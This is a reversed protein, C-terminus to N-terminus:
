PQAQARAAEEREKEERAARSRFTSLAYHYDDLYDIDFALESPAGPVAMGNIGVLEEIKREIDIVTLKRNKYDWLTKWGLMMVMKFKSKRRKFIEKIRPLAIKFGRVSILYACGATWEGDLLNLFTAEAGPFKEDWDNRNIIPVYLDKDGSCLGLFDDIAKGSLFPLDATVILVKYPPLNQAALWDLGVKINDASDGVAPFAAEVLKAEESEVVEPTGVIVIRGLQSSARLAEITRRLVTVGEYRILAKSRVGVVREFEDDITGGAPIVVDLGAM